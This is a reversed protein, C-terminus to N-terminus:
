DSEATAGTTFDVVKEQEISVVVVTKGTTTSTSSTFLISKADQLVHKETGATIDDIIVRDSGDIRVTKSVTDQTLDIYVPDLIDIFFSDSKRLERGIMLRAFRQDSIMDLESLNKFSFTQMHVMLVGVSLFLVSSVIITIMVELLTFGTNGRKM